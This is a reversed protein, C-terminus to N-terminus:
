GPTPELRRTPRRPRRALLARRPIRLVKPGPFAVDGYMKSPYPPLPPCTIPPPSPAGEVDCAAIFPPPTENSGPDYSAYPAPPPCIRICCIRPPPSPTPGLWPCIGICIGDPLFPAPDPIRHHPPPPTM